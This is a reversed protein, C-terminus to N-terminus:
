KVSFGWLWHGGNDRAVGGVAAVFSGVGVAADTNVEWRIGVEGRSISDLGKRFLCGAISVNDALRLCWRLFGEKQEFNPHFARKNRWIWLQQLSAEEAMYRRVREANTLLRDYLVLWLFSRVRQPVKLRWAAKWPFDNVTM